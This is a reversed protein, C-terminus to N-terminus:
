RQMCPMGVRLQSGATAVNQEIKTVDKSQKGFRECMYKYAGSPDYHEKDEDAYRGALTAVLEASQIPTILMAWAKALAEVDAKDETDQKKNHLLARNVKKARAAAILKSKFATWEIHNKQDDSTIVFALKISEQDKSM